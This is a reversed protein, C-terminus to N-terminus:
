RADMKAPQSGFIEPHIITALARLGRVLVPGPTNLWEDRVVQIRDARVAAANKWGPRKRVVGPRARGGTAAWALIIIEPDAALVEWSSVPRGAVEPVFRGGAAEVLEAVWPECTRLPNPWVECYVRPKGQAKAGRRSIQNIEKRMKAIVREGQKPRGVVGAIARIDGYIDELTRPSTALLRIGRALLGKVIEPGYPVGGIVLDPGLAAVKAPDANWCDAFAPLAEILEPPAVDKCWRTVGALCDAAGLESLINTASPVLSVIRMAAPAM